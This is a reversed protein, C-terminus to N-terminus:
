RQLPDFIAFKVGRSCKDHAFVSKVMRMSNKDWLLIQGDDGYTLISSANVTFAISGFLHSTTITQSVIFEIKGNDCWNSQILDIHTMRAALVFKNSDYYQFQMASYLHNLQISQMHHTFDSRNEFSIHDCVSISEMTSTAEKSYLAILHFIGNTEVASYDSYTRSFAILQKIDSNNNSERKVFFFYHEDDIAMLSTSNPLFQMRVINTSTLHYEAIVTADGNEDISLIIIRGFVTAIGILPYSEHSEICNIGNM